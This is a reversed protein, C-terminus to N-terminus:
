VFLVINVWLPHVGKDIALGINLLVLVPKSFSGLTVLQIPPLVQSGTCIIPILTHTVQSLGYISADGSNTM